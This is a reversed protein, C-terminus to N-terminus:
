VRIPSTQHSSLKKGQRSARIPSFTSFGHETGPWHARKWSTGVKLFARSSVGPVLGSSTPSMTTNACSASPMAYLNEVVKCNHFRYVHRTHFVTRERWVM